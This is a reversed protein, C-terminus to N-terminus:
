RYTWLLFGKLNTTTKITATHDPTFTAPTRRRSILGASPLPFSLSFQSSICLCTTCLYATSNICFLKWLVMVLTPHYLHKTHLKSIKISLFKLWFLNHFSHFMPYLRASSQVTKRTQLKAAKSNTLHCKNTLIYHSSM